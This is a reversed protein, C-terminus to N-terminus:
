YERPVTNKASCTLIYNNYHISTKPAYLYLTPKEELVKVPFSYGNGNRDTLRFERVGPKADKDIKLDVIVRGAIAPSAQLSNRPVFWAHYMIERECPTLETLREHFSHTRWGETSEPKKVTIPKGAHFQRLIQTYYRRQSGSINPLNRIYRVKEVTVGGGSIYAGHSGWFGQGGIIIEVHSDQKAGSPMLFGIHSAALTSGCALALM